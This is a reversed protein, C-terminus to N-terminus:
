VSITSTRLGDRSSGGSTEDQLQSYALAESAAHASFFELASGFLDDDNRGWFIDEDPGGWFHTTFLTAVPVGSILELKVSRSEREEVLEQTFMAVSISRSGLKMCSARFENLKQAVRQVDKRRHGRYHYLYCASGSGVFSSLFREAKRAYSDRAQMDSIVDHHTFEFFNSISKDYLSNECGYLTNVVVRKGYRDEYRLASPSILESFRSDVLQKVYDINSRAHSFPTVVYKLNHRKIVDHSLCNEGISYFELANQSFTKM